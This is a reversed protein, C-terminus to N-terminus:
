NEHELNVISLYLPRINPIVKFYPDFRHNGAIKTPIELSPPRIYDNRLEGIAHLVARFYISTTSFSRGFNTAVVRNRLNHGITHLFMAVQQEVTLHVSDELLKRDRLIDCLRFFPGRDFRLMNRCTVDCQWIKQNLYDFRIRDREHMPGYTIRPRRRKRMIARVLVAVAALTMFVVAGRIMRKRKSMSKVM